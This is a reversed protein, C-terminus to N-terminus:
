NHAQPRTKNIKKNPYLFVWAPARGPNSTSVIGAARVRKFFLGIQEGCRFCYLQNSSAVMQSQIKRWCQNWLWYVKEAMWNYSKAGPGRDLTWTWSKTFILDPIFNRELEERNCRPNRCGDLDLLIRTSHRSRTQELQQHRHKHLRIKIGYKGGNTLNVYHFILDSFIKKSCSLDDCKHRHGQAVAWAVIHRDVHCMSAAVIQRVWTHAQPRSGGSREGGNKPTTHKLRSSM